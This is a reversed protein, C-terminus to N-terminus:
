TSPIRQCIRKREFFPEEVPVLAKECLDKTPWIILISNGLNDKDAVGFWRCDRMTRIMGVKIAAEVEPPFRKCIEITMAWDVPPPEVIAAAYLAVALSAVLM